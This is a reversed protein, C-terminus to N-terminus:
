NQYEARTYCTFSQVTTPGPVLSPISLSHSTRVHSQSLGPGLWGKPHKGDHKTALDTSEKILAKEVPEPYIGQMAM